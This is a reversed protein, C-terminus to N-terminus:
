GGSAETIRIENGITTNNSDVPLLLLLRHMAKSRSNTLWSEMHRRRGRGRGVVVLMSWRSWRGMNLLLHVPAWSHHLLHRHRVVLHTM